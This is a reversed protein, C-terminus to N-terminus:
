RKKEVRKGFIYQIRSIGHKQYLGKSRTYTCWARIPYLIVVVIPLVLGCAYYVAWDENICSIILGIVWYISLTIIITILM